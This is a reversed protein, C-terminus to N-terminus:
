NKFTYLVLVPNDDPQLDTLSGAKILVPFDEVVYGADVSEILCNNTSWRPFFRDYGPIIDNEV